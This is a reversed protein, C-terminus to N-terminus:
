LDNAPEEHRRHENQTDGERYQVVPGTSADIPQHCELKPSPPPHAARTPRRWPTATDLPVAASSTAAAVSWRPSPSLTIMGVKVMMEQMWCITWDPAVGTSTSESGSVQLMSTEGSARGAIAGLYLCLGAPPSRGTLM